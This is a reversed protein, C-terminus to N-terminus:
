LRLCPEAIKQGKQLLEGFRATQQIILVLSFRMSETGLVTLVGQGVIDEGTKMAASVKVPDIVPQSPFGASRALHFQEQPSEFNIKRCARKDLPFWQQVDPVHQLFADM